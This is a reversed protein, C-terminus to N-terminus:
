LLFSGPRSEVQQTSENEINLQNLYLFAFVDYINTPLRILYKNTPTRKKVNPLRRGRKKKEQDLSKKSQQDFQVKGEAGVEIPVQRLTAKLNNTSSLDYNKQTKWNKMILSDSTVKLQLDWHNFSVEKWEAQAREKLCKISQPFDLDMSEMLSHM